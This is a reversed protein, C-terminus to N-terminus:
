SPYDDMRGELIYEGLILPGEVKTVEDVFIFERPPEHEAKQTKLRLARSSAASRRTTRRGRRLDDADRKQWVQVRQSTNADYHSVTGDGAFHSHPSNNLIAANRKSWDFGIREKMDGSQNLLPHDGWRRETAPAMPKWGGNGQASFYALTRRYWRGAIRQMAPAIDIARALMPEFISDGPRFTASRTTRLNLM